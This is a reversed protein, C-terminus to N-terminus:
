RFVTRYMVFGIKRGPREGKESEPWRAVARDALMIRRLQRAVCRKGCEAPMGSAKIYSIAGIVADWRICECVGFAFKEDGASILYIANLYM